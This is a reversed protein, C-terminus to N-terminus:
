LEAEFANFKQYSIGASFVVGIISAIISAAWAIPINTKESLNTM